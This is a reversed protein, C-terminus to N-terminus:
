HYLLKIIKVIKFYIYIHIFMYIFIYTNYYYFFIYMCKVIYFPFANMCLNFEINCYFIFYYQKRCRNVIHFLRLGKYRGIDWLNTIYFKSTEEEKIDNVDIEDSEDLDDTM